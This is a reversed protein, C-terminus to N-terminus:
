RKEQTTKVNSKVNIFTIRNSIDSVFAM